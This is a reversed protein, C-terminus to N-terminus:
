RKPEPTACRACHFEVRESEDTASPGFSIWGHGWLTVEDRRLLLEHGGDITIRTGNSSCDLLVYRGDRREISAHIRSAHRDRVVISMNAGRGITLLGPTSVQSMQICRDGYRLTLLPSEASSQADSGAVTLDAGLQWIAEYLETPQRKGRVHISYLQRAMQRWRASLLDVTDKSTLIQGPSALETLRAAINVTDGFVDGSDDPLVSGHHLGIRLSMSLGAIAPLEAVALQMDIAAQMAREAEPFVVMVEDGITKVIRGGSAQAQSKMLAICRAIAEFAAMDGVTEYLETSGSVDAFMVSKCTPAQKPQDNM